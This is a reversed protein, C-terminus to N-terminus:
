EDGDVRHDAIPTWPFRGDDEFGTAAPDDVVVDGAVALHVDM